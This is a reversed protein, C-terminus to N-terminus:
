ETNSQTAADEGEAGSCGSHATDEGEAGSDGSHATDEGAESCGSHATSKRESEKSVSTPDPHPTQKYM